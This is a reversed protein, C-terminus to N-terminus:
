SVNFQEYLRLLMPLQRALREGELCLEVLSYLRIAVPSDVAAYPTPLRNAHRQVWDSIRAASKAFAVASAQRAAHSKPSVVGDLKIAAYEQVYRVIGVVHQAAKDYTLSLRRLVVAAKKDWDQYISELRTMTTKLRAQTFLRVEETSYGADQLADCAPGTAALDFGHTEAWVVHLLKKPAKLNSM